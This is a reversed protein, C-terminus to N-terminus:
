KVPMDKIGCKDLLSLAEVFDLDSQVDVKNPALKLCLKALDLVPDTCHMAESVYLGGAEKFLKQGLELNHEDSIQVCININNLSHTNTNSYILSRRYLDNVKDQYCLHLLSSLRRIM